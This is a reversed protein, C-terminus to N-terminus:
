SASTLCTGASLLLGTRDCGSGCFVFLVVPDSGVLQLGFHLEKARLLVEQAANEKEQTSFFQM